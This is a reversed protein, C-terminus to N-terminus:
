STEGEGTGLTETMAEAIQMAGNVHCATGHCVKVVHRGLPDFRFQTYFTAVGYVRSLPIGLEGSLAELRDAPLYGYEGQMAQLLPILKSKVVTQETGNDTM